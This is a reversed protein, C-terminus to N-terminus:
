AEGGSALLWRRLFELLEGPPELWVEAETPRPEASVLIPLGRGKLMHFADEDTQDDGMFAVAPDMGAERLICLVADGKNAAPVRIELGGDFELLRLHHPGLLPQWSQLAKERLAERAPRVLGRWHLAVGGAKRELNAELSYGQLSSFAAALGADQVEPLRGIFHSGDPMMREFGHSGWIEPHPTAGILRAVERAPRGSILVVRTGNRMIRELLGPVEPYPYAHERDTTFPALTGDYDLLLIREAAHRLRDLFQAYPVQRDLLKMEGGFRVM